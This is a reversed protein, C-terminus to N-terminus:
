RASSLYLSLEDVKNSLCQINLHCVGFDLLQDPAFSHPRDPVIGLRSQRRATPWLETSLIQDKRELPIILKFSSKKGDKRTKMKFCETDNGIENDKLFELIDEPSVAPDFGTLFLESRKKAVKLKKLNKNQGKIPSPRLETRGTLRTKRGGVTQWENGVDEENQNMRCQFDEM